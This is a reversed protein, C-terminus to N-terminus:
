NNEAIFESDRESAAILDKPPTQRVRPATTKQSAKESVILSEELHFKAHATM